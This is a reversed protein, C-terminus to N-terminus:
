GTLRRRRANFLWAGVPGLCTAALLFVTRWSFDHGLSARYSTRADAYRGENRHSSGLRSELWALKPEVLDALEEHERGVREIFGRAGTILRVRNASVNASHLRRVSTVDVSRHIAYRAALRLWFEYDDSGSTITEDLLGLEDFCRRRVLVSATEIFNARYLARLADRREMENLHVPPQVAPMVDPDGSDMVRTQVASFVLGLDDPSRDFVALQKATKEPLWLDDQDLLGIFEASSARIGTNRAAAIGRNEDHRILRVRPDELLSALADVSGDPSADDIVIAEVSPETQALVSRVADAIYREGNFCPIIASVRPTDPM